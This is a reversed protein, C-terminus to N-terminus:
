KGDGIIKISLDFARAFLVGAILTADAMLITNLDLMCAIETEVRKLSKCM